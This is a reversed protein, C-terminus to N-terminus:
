ALDAYVLAFLITALILWECFSAQTSNASITHMYILGEGQPIEVLPVFELPQFTKAVIKHLRLRATAPLQVAGVQVPPLNECGRLIAWAVGPAAGPLEM